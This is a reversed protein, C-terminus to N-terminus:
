GLFTVVDWKVDDIAYLKELITKVKLRYKGWNEDLLTLGYFRKGFSESDYEPAEIYGFKVKHLHYVKKNDEHVGGLITKFHLDNIFHEMALFEIMAGLGLHHDDIFFGWEAFMKQTDIRTLDISGILVKDCYIGWYCVDKRDKLAKLWSFHEEKAIVQPNYMYKRISPANRLSLVAMAEEHTFQIYNKFWFNM